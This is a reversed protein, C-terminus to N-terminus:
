IKILNFSSIAIGNPNQYTPVKKIELSVIVKENIPDSTGLYSVFAKIEVRWVPDGYQDRDDDGSTIIAKEVPTIFVELSSNKVNDILGSNNVSNIFGDYGNDTFLINMKRFHEDINTFNFTYISLMSKTAWEEISESSIIPEDYTQILKIQKHVTDTLYFDTNPKASSIFFLSFLSIVIILSIFVNFGTNNIFKKYYNDDSNILINEDNKDSGLIKNFIKFM